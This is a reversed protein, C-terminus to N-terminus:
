PFAVVAPEFDADPVDNRTNRLLLDAIPAHRSQCRGGLLNILERGLSSARSCALTNRSSLPIPIAQSMLSLIFKPRAVDSHCREGFSSGM